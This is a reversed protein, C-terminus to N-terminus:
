IKSWDFEINKLNENIQEKEDHSISAINIIYSMKNSIGKFGYWIKPPVYLRSYNKEGIIEQKFGKTNQDYFVFAVEGIPVILNLFMKKHLKWAKIKKSKITSIYVEGFKIFSNESRKLCHLVSGKDSHIKKLNIKKIHRLSNKM